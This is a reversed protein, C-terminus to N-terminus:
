PRRRHVYYVKCTHLPSEDDSMLNESLRVEYWGTKTFIFENEKRGYEWPRAKIGDTVLRLQGFKMFREPDMLPRAAPGIVHPRFIVFFDTGDPARVALEGGHPTAMDLTLTDGRLLKQPSCRLTAKRSAGASSGRPKRSQAPVDSVVLLTLCVATALSVLLNM